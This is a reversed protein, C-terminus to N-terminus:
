PTGLKHYKAEAVRFEGISLILSRLQSKREEKSQSEEPPVSLLNKLESSVNEMSKVLDETEKLGLELSAETAPKFKLCYSLNDKHIEWIKRLSSTCKKLLEAEKKRFQVDSDTLLSGWEVANFALFAHEMAQDTPERTTMTKEVWKEWTTDLSSIERWQNQNNYIKEKTSSIKQVYDLLEQEPKSTKENWSKTLFALSVPTALNYNQAEPIYSDCIGIVKGEHNILPSGSAGESLPASFVIKAKDTASIMGYHIAIGLGLPYGLTYVKQGPKILFDTDIELGQNIPINKESHSNHSKFVEPNVDLVAIDLIPHERWSEIIWTKQPTEAIIVGQNEVVHKNTIIKIDGLTTIFGTGSRAPFSENGLSYIKVIGNRTKEFLEESKISATPNKFGVLSLIKNYQSGLIFSTAILLIIFLITVPKYQRKPNNM